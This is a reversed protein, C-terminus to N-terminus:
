HGRRPKYVKHCVWRYCPACHWRHHHHRHWKKHHRHHWCKHHHHRHHWCKHHHRHHCCHHRRYRVDTVTSTENAAADIVAGNAPVAMAGSSSLLAFGATAALAILLKRM